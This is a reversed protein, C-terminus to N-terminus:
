PQLMKNLEALVNEFEGPFRKGLVRQAHQARPLFSQLISKAKEAAASNPHDDRVKQCARAFRLMESPRDDKMAKIKDLAAQAELESKFQADQEIGTIAEQLLSKAKAAKTNELIQHLLTHSEIRFLADKSRETEFRTISKCLTEILVNNQKRQKNHHHLELLRMCHALMPPSAWVHAGRFTILANDMKRKNLIKQQDIMEPYNYDTNGSSMIYYTDSKKPLPSNPNRFAGCSIMGAFKKKQTLSFYMSERAGGSMGSVYLRKDDISLLEHSDNWIHKQTERNDRNNKSNHSSVIIWGLEKAGSEYRKIGGNGGSPSFTYLTPWKKKDDYDAPLFISYLEDPHNPSTVVTITGPKLDEANLNANICILFLLFFRPM